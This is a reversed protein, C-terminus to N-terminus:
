SIIEEKKIIKMKQNNIIRNLDREQLKLYQSFSQSIM